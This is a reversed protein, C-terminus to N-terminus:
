APFRFSKHKYKELHIQARIFVGWFLRYKGRMQQIKNFCENKIDCFM